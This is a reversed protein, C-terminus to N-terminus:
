DSGSDDEAAKHEREANGEGEDSERDWDKMTAGMMFDDRLINWAPGDESKVTAQKGKATKGPMSQEPARGEKGRLVSIFDRKSVSTMLKNKKRESGGAERIKDGVNKQHKRVANFLQVVGRTALKQLSREVERDSVIDPKVRCMMEWERKRDIQKKRELREQKEKAKQKERERNKALIVPKKELAKKGLIRAMADAWGSNASEKEANEAGEDGSELRNELDDKSADGSSCSDDGLDADGESDSSDEKLVIEAEVRSGEVAAAM